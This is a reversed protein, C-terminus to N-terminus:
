RRLSFAKRVWEHAAGTRISEATIQLVIWGLLQAENHGGHIGNYELAIKVPLYLCRCGATTCYPAHANESHKCTACFWAADFRWKRDAHFKYELEPEPAGLMNLDALFKTLPHARGIREIKNKRTLEHNQNSLELYQQATKRENM